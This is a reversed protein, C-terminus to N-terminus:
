IWRAWRRPARHNIHFSWYDHRGRVSYDLNSSWGHRGKRAAARWSFAHRRSRLWRVGNRTTTRYAGRGVWMRGALWSTARTARIGQGFRGAPLGCPSDPQDLTATIADTTWSSTDSSLVAQVTIPGDANSMTARLDWVLSAPARAATADAVTVVPWSGLPSGDLTVDATPIGTWTTTGPLQYQFRVGTAAPPGVAGLTLFRQTRQEATPSTVGAVAGFSWTAEDSLNGAKDIAQVHLTHWGNPPTISV